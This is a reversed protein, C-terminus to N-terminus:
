LLILVAVAPECGQELMRVARHLDIDAHPALRDALELSYGADILTELRWAEVREWEPQMEIIPETAVDSGCPLYFSPFSPGPMM